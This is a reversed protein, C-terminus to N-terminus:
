YNSEGYRMTRFLTAQRGGRYEGNGCIRGYQLLCSVLSRLQTGDQSPTAAALFSLPKKYKSLNGERISDAAASTFHFLAQKTNEKCSVGIWVCQTNKPWVPAILVGGLGAM